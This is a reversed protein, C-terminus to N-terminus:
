NSLINSVLRSTHDVIAIVREYPMRTPGIVGIVGKLGAVRYEATVLTFDSLEETRNEAGITIQLGGAHNREALAGALLDTRETLQILGTLSERSTFEPQSALLSTQGLHVGSGDSPEGVFLDGSSQMFINLLESAAPDDDPASDRLREILSERIERLTLGVLRENLIMALTVLTDQPVGGPLDVYVTRILGSRITAILLVKDSAVQILDLKELSADDLMPAVAVGLEMSLVSLARAAQKVLREVATIPEPHLTEAVQRREAQTLSPPRIVQDVFFRYAQDTPVRGASAHPHFLYGKDELDSMTNRVTAASVGLEFDRSVTRSGAPEATDVYSRVVAELVQRERDTMEPHNHPGGERRSM